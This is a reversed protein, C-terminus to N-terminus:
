KVTPPLLLEKKLERMKEWIQRTEDLSLFGSLAIGRLASIQEVIAEKPILQM